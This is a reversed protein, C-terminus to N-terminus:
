GEEVNQEIIWLGYEPIVEMSTSTPNPAFCILLDNPNDVSEIKYSNKADEDDDIPPKTEEAPKGGKPPPAKGAAAKSDEVPAEEKKSIKIYIDKEDM